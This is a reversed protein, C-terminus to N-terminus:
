LVACDPTALPAQPRPSPSPREGPCDAVSTAHPRGPLLRSYISELVAAQARWTWHDLLCMDDYAARHRARNALVARVARVYDTTDEAAFVEGQGTARVTDAMTRVDSVVIPLRAHSYEYFKTSLAIEHNPLRHVPIVGVDATSLFGIVQRYPVFPHVHMRETVGLDAALSRLEEIFPQHTKPFVFAVHVGDLDPLAELMLRLGRQAAAMGSYVLLPIAPDLGCASRVDAVPPPDDEGGVAVDPANFVVAPRAALGHREQLLDALSDSVTVVADANHAYENEHACHAPLWYANDRRPQIGPLYEHADWVLKIQRGQARGRVCARAGVGLM